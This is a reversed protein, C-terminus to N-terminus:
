TRWVLEESTILRLIINIVTLIAMQGEPAIVFGTFLQVAVVGLAVANVWLMKSKYWEKTM